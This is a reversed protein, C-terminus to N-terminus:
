IFDHDSSCPPEGAEVKNIM